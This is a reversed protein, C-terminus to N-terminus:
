EADDDDADDALDADNAEEEESEAVDQRRNHESWWAAEMDVYAQREAPGPPPVQRCGTATCFDEIMATFWYRASSSLDDDSLGRAVRDAVESPDAVPVHSVVVASEGDEVAELVYVYKLADAVGLRYADSDTQFRGLDERLMEIVDLLLRADEAGFLPDYEDGLRAAVGRVMRDLKDAPLRRLAPNNM